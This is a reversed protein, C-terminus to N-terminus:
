QAAAGREAREVILVPIGEIVPYRRGCGGCSLWEAAARLAGQCAPCVWAEPRLRPGEAFTPQAM